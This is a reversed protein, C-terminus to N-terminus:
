LTLPVTKNENKRRKEGRRPTLPGHSTVVEKMCHLTGMPVRCRDYVTQVGLGKKRSEKDPRKANSLVACYEGVASVPHYRTRIKIKRDRDVIDFNM